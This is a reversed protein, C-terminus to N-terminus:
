FPQDEDREIENLSSTKIAEYGIDSFRSTTLDIAMEYIGTDGERNKAIIVEAMGYSSGGSEMETEGYYEPRHIFGVISADQEIEGSQRLDPLSPRKGVKASDRSLQALALIPVGLNQTMSKLDNSAYTVSEYMSQRSNRPRIKQLYDVIVVDVGGSAKRRTIEAAIDAATQSGAVIHLNDELQQTWVRTVRLNEEESMTGYKIHNSNVRSQHAMVRRMMQTRSMELAFITVKLDMKTVWDAACSIAWATKGMAPRAGMVMLDVPELLVVRRFSNFPLMIGSMEGVSAKESARIVELITDKNSEPAVMVEDMEKIRDMMWGRYKDLAFTENEMSRTIDNVMMEAKRKHYHYEAKNLLTDIYMIEMTGIQNTLGSIQVIYKRDMKEKICRESVTLINVEEGEQILQGMVKYLDKHFNMMNWQPNIAKYTDLAVQPHSMIVGYIKDLTEKM